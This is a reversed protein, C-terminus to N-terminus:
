STETEVHKLTAAMFSDFTQRHAPELTDLWDAVPEYGDDSCGFFHREIKLAMSVAINATEAVFQVYNGGSNFAVRKKWMAEPSGIIGVALACLVCGSKNIPDYYAITPTIMEGGKRIATALERPSM